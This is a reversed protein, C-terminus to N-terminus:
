SRNTKISEDLKTIDSLELLQKWYKPMKNFIVQLQNETVYGTAKIKKAIPTLTAEDCKTFGIGNRHISKKSMREEVTQSHYIRLLGRVAWEVNTSLKEKLHIRYTQKSHNM